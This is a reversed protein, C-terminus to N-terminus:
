VPNGDPDLFQEEPEEVVEDPEWKFVMATDYFQYWIVGNEGTLVIQHEVGPFDEVSVIRQPKRSNPFYVQDGPVITNAFVEVRM